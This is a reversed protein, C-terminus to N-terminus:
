ISFNEAQKIFAEQEEPTLDVFYANWGCVRVQLTAYKEPNKQAKRLDEANFVNGHMAFGGKLMYTRLIGYFANLGNEGRVASPHLVVDLVSGTPFESHDIITVSNILATIGNKDMATTACLNKSLPEGFLRGDPTAMTKKGYAFGYDISFLAAKFVGGRANPKNNVLNACFESFEQALSDALPNENGYKEPLNKVKELLEANTEWNNKLVESLEDFTLLQEDFVVKKVAAVADVLTAIFWFYMSSNNYKAGGEYVDVGRKVSEDYMASLLPDPNTRDYFKELKIVYDLAKDTMFAIHAKVANIFDDYTKIKGTEISIQKGSAFDKGGTVTLEVAKVLNIGGNGTCGIEVGWVAPEYCGIPVYNKADKEDIGVKELSKIGVNDNVFVFSSHGDRIFSLIMKVFDAPTKDSVRIHVKPSYIDLENYTEAILYSMENTVEEDNEDIGGLCFPLDFPVKMAWFKHLFFKMMEKIEEKTFIGKEIDNKYFPYLLVDLRGLTRVRTGGIYEHMYFYAVLLQMAEYTNKPASDSINLLVKANEKDYPKIADSLRKLFNMCANLTITISEYFIKQKETLNDKQSADKARDLLGKFGLELLIKSNPSTHGYDSNAAYAKCDKTALCLMEVEKSLYKEKLAKEWLFRQEAMLNIGSVKEQFIDDKDIAIRANKLIYEFTKAKVIAVPLDEENRTFNSVDNRLAEDSIGSEEIWNINEYQKTLGFNEKSFKKM